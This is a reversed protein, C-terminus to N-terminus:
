KGNKGMIGFIQIVFAKCLGINKRLVLMKLGKIYTSIDLYVTKIERSSPYQPLLKGPQRMIFSTTKLCQEPGSGVGPAVDFAYHQM